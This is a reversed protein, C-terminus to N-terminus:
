AIGGWDAATRESRPEAPQIREAVRLRASRSRPNRRREEDSAGMAHRTILHLRARHGCVCVPLRPPCVCDRSELAMFQKVMRDEGSHFSIVALRGGPALVDVAQPLVAALTEEDRNVYRRLALFTKTAPHLKGHRGVAREVIKALQGSTAVPRAQVIASAIRRSAREDGLRFLVDALDHERLRNVVNAATEGQRRDLRMDLPADVLFSMGRDSDAAIQPSSIGLDLLVGRCPSFGHATAVEALNEFNSHVLTAQEGFEALRDGAAAIAEADADLGLLRGDPASAQLIAAAHGGMGCTGDIWLGGPQVDLLTLVEDICVSEHRQRQALQEHKEYMEAALDGM